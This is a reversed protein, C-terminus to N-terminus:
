GGLVDRHLMTIMKSMASRLATGQPQVYSTGNAVVGSILKNDVAWGLRTRAWDSVEQSGAIANLASGTSSIDVGGVKSAYNALMVALQERSVPDEPGFTRYVGDDDRYGNIIGKSRAWSIAPGYYWSYDVDDFYPADVLAGGAMRHLITAVQGRTIPDNPGFLGSDSYTGMLGTKTVYDFMGSTYYWDTRSVDAPIDALLFDIDVSGEIGDITGHQTAQWTKYTGAYDCTVNYQAVWREWSNFVPDTLYNDWWYLNAYVGADYGAAEIRTCFTQAISALLSRNAVNGLHNEELDLYVPFAPNHGKLLRFVHDAESRADEVSEAYSYLYVGYPIGLRECESVNRKWYKDDQDTYDNGYGCRILAFDVGDAKVAEWDIEKAHESVDIGRQIAGYIPTGDSSVYYGESNKTWAPTSASLSIGEDLVIPQGDSFRWSNELRGSQPAPADTAEASVSPADSAPEAAFAATPALGLALTASLAISTLSKPASM